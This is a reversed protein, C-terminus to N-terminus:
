IGVTSNVLIKPLPYCDKPCAKNLDTYDVCMWWKRNATKVMVVNALWTPYEVEHIFRAKLLKEIEDKM